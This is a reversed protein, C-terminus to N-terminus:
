SNYPRMEHPELSVGGDKTAGTLMLRWYYLECPMDMQKVSTNKNGCHSSYKATVKIRLHSRVRVRM